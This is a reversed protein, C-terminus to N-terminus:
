QRRLCRLNQRHYVAIDEPDGFGFGGEPLPPPYPTASEKKSFHTVPNKLPTLPGFGEGPTALTLCPRPSKPEVTWCVRPLHPPIHAPHAPRQHWHREAPLPLVVGAEGRGLVGDQQRRLLVGLGPGGLVRVGHWGGASRRLVGRAGPRVAARGGGGRAANPEEARRTARPPAGSRCHPGSRSARCV